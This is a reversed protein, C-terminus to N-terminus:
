LAKLMAAVAKRLRLPAHVSVKADCVQALRQAITANAEPLILDHM